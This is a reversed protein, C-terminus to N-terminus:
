TTVAYYDGVRIEIADGYKTQLKKITENKQPHNENVTAVIKLKEYDIGASVIGPYENNMMEESIEDMLLNLEEITYEKQCGVFFLVQSCVFLIFVYTVMNKIVSKM